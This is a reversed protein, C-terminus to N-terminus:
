LWIRTVRFHIWKFPSKTHDQKTSATTALTHTHLTPITCLVGEDYAMAGSRSPLPSWPASAAVSKGAVGGNQLEPHHHQSHVPSASLGACLMRPWSPLLFGLAHQPFLHAKQHQLSLPFHGPTLSAHLKPQSDALENILSYFM